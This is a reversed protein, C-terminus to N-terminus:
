AKDGFKSRRARRKRVEASRSASGRKTSTPKRRPTQAPPPVKLYKLALANLLSADRTKKLVLDTGRNLRLTLGDLKKLTTKSDSLVGNQYTLGLEKLDDDKLYLRSRKARKKRRWKILGAIM